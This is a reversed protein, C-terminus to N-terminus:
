SSLIAPTADRGDGRPEPPRHTAARGPRTIRRVVPSAAGPLVALGTVVARTLRPRRLTWAVARCGRQRRGVVDRYAQEWATELRVDWREVAASALPVVAAGGALAWAIGEGTFPEVYGAADGVVFLGPGALRDRRRTLGPTVRWARDAETPLTVGTEGALEAMAAAVGGAAKIAGSDVAAALDVAGDELRVAGLYGARGCLMVIEGDAPELGNLLSGDRVVAGVGWRSSPREVVDFGDLRTLCTGGLGDAAVVVRCRVRSGDGLEVVHGQREADEPPSVRATVGERVEAGADRAADILAGDLAARSLSVGRRSGRPLAVQAQKGGSIIRLRALPRAGLSACLGGLGGRELTDLAYGNVCCGCVKDRRGSRKDVLLVRRGVLALGRAATAGAPGAGIVVADFSESRRLDGGICSSIDRMM